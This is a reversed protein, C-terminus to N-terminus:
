RAQATGTKHSTLVAVLNPRCGYPHGPLAPGGAAAATGALSGGAGAAGPGLQAAAARRFRIFSLEEDAAAALGALEGTAAVEAPAVAALRRLHHLPVTGSGNHLCAATALAVLLLLGLLPATFARSPQEGRPKHDRPM